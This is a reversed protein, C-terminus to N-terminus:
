PRSNPRAAGGLPPYAQGDLAEHGWKGQEKTHLAVQRVHTTGLAQTLSVRDSTSM